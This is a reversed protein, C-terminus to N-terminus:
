PEHEAMIDDDVGVQLEVTVPFHDSLHERFRDFQNEALQQWVTAESTRIEQHAGRMVDAVMIYDIISKPQLPSGALRTAAYTTEDALLDWPGDEMAELELERKDDFFDLNLDGAIVIDNEEGTSLFGSSLLQTLKAQLVKLARDHNKVKSQGSALHVGVMLFDNMEVGNQVVTFHGVLPDREFIDKKENGDKVKEQPITLETFADLRVQSQDFLIAVRQAGGSRAIVYSFSAPLHSLLCDLVASVAQPEDDTQTTEGDIENLVLVAAHLDSTIVEAVAAYDNETRPGYKGPTEPFGRRATPHLWELNWTGVVITGSFAGSSGSGIREGIYREVIWAQEPGVEVQLWGTPQDIALITAVSGHLFRVSVSRDGAAPHGPIENGPRHLYYHDGVAQASAFSYTVVAILLASSLGRLLLM